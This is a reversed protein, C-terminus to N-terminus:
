ADERGFRKQPNSLNACHKCFCNMETCSGPVFMYCLSIIKEFGDWNLNAHQLQKISIPLDSRVCVQLWIYVLGLNILAFLEVVIGTDIKFSFWFIGGDHRLM